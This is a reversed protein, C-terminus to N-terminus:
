NRGSLASYNANQPKHERSFLLIYLRFLPSTHLDCFGLAALMNAKITVLVYPLM